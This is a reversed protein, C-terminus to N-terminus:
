DKMIVASKVKPSPPQVAAANTQSWRYPRVRASRSGRRNPPNQLRQQTREVQRVQGRLFSVDSSLTTTNRNLRELERLVLELSATLTQMAKLLSNQCNCDTQTNAVTTTTLVSAQPTSADPTSTRVGNVPSDFFDDGLLDQLINVSSRDHEADEQLIRRVPSTM